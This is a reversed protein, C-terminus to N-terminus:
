ISKLATKSKQIYIAEFNVKEIFQGNRNLRKLSKKLDKEFLTKKKGLVAGSSFSTSYLYGIIQPITWKLTEKYNIIRSKKFPSEAIVIRYKEKSEVYTGSGARREKGLYKRILKQVTIKWKIKASQNMNHEAVIIIGGDPEIMRYLKKLIRDKNMWHFSRGMVVLRFKGMKPSVTDSGGRVWKINKVRARKAQLKGEKLMEPEPDMAIVKKFYPSLPISLEGTGCGLDLLSGKGNFSFNKIADAFFEKPYKPRYKTYYKATGKFLNRYAM